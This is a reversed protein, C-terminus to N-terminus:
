KLLRRDKTPLEYNRCNGAIRSIIRSYQPMDKLDKLQINSTFIMVYDRRNIEEIYANWGSLTYNTWEEVFLDDILNFKAVTPKEHNRILDSIWSSYYYKCTKRIWAPYYCPYDVTAQVDEAEKRLIQRYFELLIHTKGSGPIGSFYFGQRNQLTERILPFVSEKSTILEPDHSKTYHEGFETQASRLLEQKFREAQYDQMRKVYDSNRNQRVSKRMNDLIKQYDPMVPNQKVDM